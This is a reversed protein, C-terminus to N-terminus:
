QIGAQAPMVDNWVPLTSLNHRLPMNAMLEEKPIRKKV